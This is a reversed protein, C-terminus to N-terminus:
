FDELLMSFEDCVPCYLFKAEDKFPRFGKKAEAPLEDFSIPNRKNGCCGCYSLMEILSHRLMKSLEKKSKM